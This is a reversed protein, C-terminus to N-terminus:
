VDAQEICRYGVAGADLALEGLARCGAQDLGDQEVVAVDGSLLVIVLVVLM